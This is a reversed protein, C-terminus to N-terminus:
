LMAAMKGFTLTNYNDMNIMHLPLKLKLLCSLKDRTEQLQKIYPLVSLVLSSVSAPYLAASIKRYYLYSHPVDKVQAPCIVKFSFMVAKVHATYKTQM